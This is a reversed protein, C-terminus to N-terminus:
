LTAAHPCCDGGRCLSGSGYCPRMKFLGSMEFVLIFISVGSPNLSFLIFPSLGLPLGSNALSAFHLARQHVGLDLAPLKIPPSLKPLPCSSRAGPQVPPYSFWIVIYITVLIQSWKCISWFFRDQLVLCVQRVWSLCLSHKACFVVGARSGLFVKLHNRVSMGQRLCPLCDEFLRTGCLYKQILM